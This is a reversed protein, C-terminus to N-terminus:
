PEQFQSINNQRLIFWGLRFGLCGSGTLTRLPLGIKERNKFPDEMNAKNTKRAQPSDQWFKMKSSVSIM